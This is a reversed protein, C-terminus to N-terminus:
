SLPRWPPCAFVVIRQQIQGFQTRLRYGVVLRRFDIPVPPQFIGVSTRGIFIEVMPLYGLTKRRFSIVQQGNTFSILRSSTSPLSHVIPRSCSYIKDTQAKASQIEALSLASVFITGVVLGKIYKSLKEM